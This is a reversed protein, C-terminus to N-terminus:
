HYFLLYVELLIWGDFVHLEKFEKDLAHGGLGRIEVLDLVFYFLVCEINVVATKIDEAGLSLM